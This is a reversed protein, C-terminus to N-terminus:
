KLKDKIELNINILGTVMLILFFLGTFFLGIKISNEINNIDSSFSYSLLLGVIGGILIIVGTWLNNKHSILYEIILRKDEKDM